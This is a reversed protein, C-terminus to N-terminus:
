ACAHVIACGACRHMHNIDGPAIVAFARHLIQEIRRPDDVLKIIDMEQLPRHDAAIDEIVEFHVEVRDVRGGAARGFM